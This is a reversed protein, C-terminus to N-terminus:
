RVTAPRSARPAHPSPKENAQASERHPARGCSGSTLLSFLRLPDLCSCFLDAFCDHIHADWSLVLAITSLLRRGASRLVLSSRVAIDYWIVRCEIRCPLSPTSSTYTLDLAIAVIALYAYIAALTSTLVM